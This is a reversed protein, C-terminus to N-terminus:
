AWQTIAEQILARWGFVSIIGGCGPLRPPAFRMAPLGDMADIESFKGCIGSAPVFAPRLIATELIAHAKLRHRGTMATPRCRMPLRSPNSGSSANRMGNPHSNMGGENAAGPTNM